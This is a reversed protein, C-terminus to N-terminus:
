VCESQRGWAEFDHAHDSLFVSMVRARWCLWGAPAHTDSAYTFNAKESTKVGYRLRQICDNSSFWRKLKWTKTARFSSTDSMPRRTSKRALFLASLCVLYQSGWQVHASLTLLEQFQLGGFHSITAKLLDDMLVFWSLMSTPSHLKGMLPSAIQKYSIM